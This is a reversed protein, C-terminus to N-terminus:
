VGGDSSERPITFHFTAGADLEGDAWIRGGHRTVIRHVLALGVGTGPFESDHHLRQFVGFLRQGHAPDFGAGNDRVFYIHERAESLGGIEIVPTERKSTFKVANSLLNAWVNEFLGRDGKAKPLSGVRFEVGAVHDSQRLREVATRVLQQMDIEGPELARRGLRSFALLDDILTGMRVSESDIVDIKRRAEADLSAGHDEVLLSSFGRIARIPARLDHSVSYSFSELDKNASELEATRAKVREELESNLMRLRNDSARLAAEVRKRESIQHELDCNSRELVQTQRDIETLMGNFADALIGIEDDTIKIARSKFDRNEMVHRAVSTIAVIPKTLNRQLRRSIVTAAILSLVMVAGIIGLYGLLRAFIGYRGKIYVTGLIENRTAIRKFLGISGGEIRYGDLDPIEPFNTAADVSYSAFLSGNAAYIAAGVLDPKAKLLALYDQASEPDDFELAPAAALGLIDAQATLDAVLTQQFTRVDYIAMAVGTILLALATTALVVYSLKQHISQRSSGM